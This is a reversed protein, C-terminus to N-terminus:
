KICAAAATEAFNKKNLLIGPGYVVYKKIKKETKIIKGVAKETISRTAEKSCVFLVAELWVFLLEM